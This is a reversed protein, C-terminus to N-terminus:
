EKVQWQVDAENVHIHLVAEMGEVPSIKQIDVQTCNPVERGDLFVGREDVKLKM